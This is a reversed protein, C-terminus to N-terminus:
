KRSRLTMPKPLPWVKTHSPTKTVACATLHPPGATRDATVVTGTQVPQPAPVPDTDAARCVAAKPQDDVALVHAHSHGPQRLYTVRSVTTSTAIPETLTVITANIQPSRVTILSAFRSIIDRIFDPINSSRWLRELCQDVRRYRSNYHEDSHQDTIGGRWDVGIAPRKSKWKM